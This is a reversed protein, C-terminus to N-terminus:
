FEVDDALKRIREREAERKLKAASEEASRKNVIEAMQKNTEELALKLTARHVKQVEEVTTRTLIIRDSEVRAIGPRHMTTYSPPHDWNRKFLEGWENTPRRSLKFPIPYLASGRTGDNAPEGMEDIIIGTIQIPEFENPSTEKFPYFQKAAERIPTPGSSRIAKGLPPAQERRKYLTAILDGYQQEDIPSATLNIGYAGSLWSPIASSFEGRRLIPIFKRHNNTTFVEGTMVDGEYGVGGERSDSKRKYVPTCIVLVYTNERIAQEMFKPLRDGPVMSWQDLEADVGDSRLRTAFEKVWSKHPEDDWSYSIFVKPNESVM